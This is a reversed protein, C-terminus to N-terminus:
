INELAAKLHENFNDDEVTANNYASNTLHKIERESIKQDESQILEEGSQMIRKMERDDIRIFNYWKTTLEKPFIYFYGSPYWQSFDFGYHSQFADRVNSLLDVSIADNNAWSYAQEIVNEFNFVDVSDSLADLVDIVESTDDLAAWEEPFQKQLADFIIKKNQESIFIYRKVIDKIDSYSPSSSLEETGDLFEDLRDGEISKQFLYSAKDLQFAFRGNEDGFKALLESIKQPPLYKNSFFTNIEPYLKLFSEFDIPDDDENMFQQAEFHFQFQIVIREHKKLLIWLTGSKTYQAFNDPYQTCWRTGRAYFQSAELTKPSVIKWKEDEYELTAQKTQIYYDNTLLVMPDEDVDEVKPAVLTKQQQVFHFLESPNKFQNIDASKNSNRLSPIIQNFTSLDETIKYLDELKLKGQQYMRLIWQGYRGIKRPAETNQKQIEPDASVLRNFIDRPIDSYYKTYAEEIGATVLFSEVKLVSFHKM